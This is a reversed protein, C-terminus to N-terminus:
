PSAVKKLATEVATIVGQLADLAPDLRDAIIKPDLQRRVLDTRVRVLGERARSLSDVAREVEGLHDFEKGSGAKKVPDKPRIGCQVPSILM